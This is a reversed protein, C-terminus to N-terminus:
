WYDWCARLSVGQDIIGVRGSTSVENIGVREAFYVKILGLM